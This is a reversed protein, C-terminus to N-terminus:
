LVYQPDYLMAGTLVVFARTIFLAIGQKRHNDRAEESPPSMMIQRGAQIQFVYLVYLFMVLGLHMWLGFTLIDENVVLRKYWDRTLFLYVPMSCDYLIVISMLTIHVRRHRRLAFGALM